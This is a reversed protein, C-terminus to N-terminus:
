LQVKRLKRLQTLVARFDKPPESTFTLRAGSTPHTVTLSAAHLTLRDILPKEDKGYDRFRKKITSLLFADRQGYAPDVLLPLGVAKCHVRIQHQRGTIPRAMILTYGRFRELETLLTIAEKGDASPRVRGARTSDTSLPIDVTITPESMEGEVIVLYRKETERERFQRNLETHAEENRAFLIVGSTEKDIRHITMLRGFEAQAMQQVSPLEPNREPIVAIGADKELAVIDDDAYLVRYTPDHRPGKARAADKAKERDEEEIKELWEEIDRPDIV